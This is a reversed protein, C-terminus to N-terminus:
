KSNLNFDMNSDTSADVHHSRSGFDASQTSQEASLDVDVDLGIPSDFNVVPASNVDFFDHNLFASFDDTPQPETLTEELPSLQNLNAIYQSVNPGRHGKYASM